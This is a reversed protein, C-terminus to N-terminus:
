SRVAHLRSEGDDMARPSHGDQDTLRTGDCLVRYVKGLHPDREVGHVALRTLGDQRDGYAWCECLCSFGAADV